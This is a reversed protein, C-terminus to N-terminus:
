VLADMGSKSSGNIMCVCQCIEQAVLLEHIARGVEEEHLEVVPEDGRACLDVEGHPELHVRKINHSDDTTDKYATVSRLLPSIVKLLRKPKRSAPQSTSSMSLCVAACM